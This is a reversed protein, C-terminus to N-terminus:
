SVGRLALVNQGQQFKLVCFQTLRHNMVYCPERMQKRSTQLLTTFM